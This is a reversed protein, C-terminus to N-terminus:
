VPKIGVGGTGDVGLPPVANGAPIIVGPLKAEESTICVGTHLGREADIEKIAAEREVPDDPPCAGTVPHRHLFFYPKGTLDIFAIWSNDEPFIYGAWGIAKPDPYRSVKINMM